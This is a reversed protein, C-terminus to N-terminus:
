AAWVADDAEADVVGIGLRVQHRIVAAVDGRGAVLQSGAALEAREAGRARGAENIALRTMM